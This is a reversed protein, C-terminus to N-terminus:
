WSGSLYGVLVSRGNSGILHVADIAGLELPLAGGWAGDVLRFAPLPVTRGDSAVLEARKVLARHNRDVTVLIWSPSGRYAFVVGAPKGGADHLRVAGFSSGNAQELTARYDSAVRLDDRVAFLLGGATAGAVVLAAAAVAAVRPWWRRREAPPQLSHLARLEFGVPPEHEPALDLLDDALASLRELERRCEFCGGAHELARAREEGDAIGLALEAALERTETCQESASM